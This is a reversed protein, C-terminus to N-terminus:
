HRPAHSLLNRHKHITCGQIPLEMGWIATLAVELGRAGDVIVFEPRQLGRANLDDLFQLSTAASEGGVNRISLLHKQGDRRVGIRSRM